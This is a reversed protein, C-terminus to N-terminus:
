FVWTKGETGYGGRRKVAFVTGRWVGVVHHREKGEKKVKRAHGGCRTSGRSRGVGTLTERCFGPMRGGGVVQRREGGWQNPAFRDWNDVLMDGKNRARSAGRSLTGTRARSKRLIGVEQNGVGIGQSNQQRILYEPIGKREGGV